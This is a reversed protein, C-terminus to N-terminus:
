HALDPPALYEKLYKRKLEEVSHIIGHDSESREIFSDITKKVMETAGDSSYDANELMRDKLQYFDLSKLDTLSFLDLLSTKAASHSQLLNTPELCATPLPSQDRDLVVCGQDPSTPLPRQHRDLVMCAQDHCTPVARQHRELVM